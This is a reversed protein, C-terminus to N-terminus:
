AVPMQREYEELSRSFNTRCEIFTDRSIQYLPHEDTHSQCHKAILEHMFKFAHRPIKLQGLWNMMDADTVAEDLLANLNVRPESATSCALLRSNILDQLSAGSWQLSRVFNQKDLRALKEDLHQQLPRYLDAPLLLKIGLRDHKLFKLDFISRMLQFMKQPEGKIRVPEDVRDVVVVLGGFCLTNGVNILKTLLKYRTDSDAFRTVPQGALDRRGFRLLLRRFEASDHPLVPIQADIERALRRTSFWRGLYPPWILFIRPLLWWRRRYRLARALLRCRDTRTIKESRDYITALLLLDRRQQLDLHALHTAGIGEASSREEVILSVLKRVALSLVADMHDRLEWDELNKKGDRTFEDLFSNFDHYEVALVRRDPHSENYQELQEIIQLALATKGSGREGLVVASSPEEPHGFIKGWLPHFSHASCGIRFVLDEKADEQTFPDSKLGHHEFFHKTQVSQESQRREGKAFSSVGIQGQRRIGQDFPAGTRGDRM